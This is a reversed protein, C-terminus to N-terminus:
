KELNIYEAPDVAEENLMLIFHLHPKDSLGSDGSLAIVEGQEVEDGVELGEAAKSLHAYVTEFGSGHDIKVIRGLTGKNDSYTIKGAAAAYVETGEPVVWDIGNHMREYQLIPHFRMGYLSAIEFSEDVPSVFTVEETPSLSLLGILMMVTISKM